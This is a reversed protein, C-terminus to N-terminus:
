LPRASPLWVKWTFARSASPFSLPGLERVHVTSVVGGLAVMVVEGELGLLSLAGLKPKLEFSSPELKCHWSSPPAKAAQV